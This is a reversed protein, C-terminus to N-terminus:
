KVGKGSLFPGYKKDSHAIHTKLWNMIFSILEVSMPATGAMFKTRFDKVQSALEEHEKKHRDYEYYGHVEMEREEEGFHKVTYDLLEELAEGMVEKQREERVSDILANFIEFLKKHQEDFRSIGVSYSEDWEMRM